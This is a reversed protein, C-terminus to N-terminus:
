HNSGRGMVSGGDSGSKGRGKGDRNRRQSPTEFEPHRGDDSKRTANIAKKKSENKKENRM